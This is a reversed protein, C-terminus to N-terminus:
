VHRSPSIPQAAARRRRMGLPSGSRRSVGFIAAVPSRQTTLSLSSPCPASRTSRSGVFGQRPLAVPGSSAGSDDRSCLVHGLAALAASYFRASADLDKVKLGIHDYM